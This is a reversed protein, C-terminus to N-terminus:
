KLREWYSPGVPEHFDSTAILYGEDDVSIPLQPLPRKAPGFVVRAEHALDFTSQHCPCLLHRTNQEYLAVPCGVHTCVKSFAIIGHYNWDEKGASVTLDEPPIRVLLVMAKSKENLYHDEGPLEGLEHPIVHFVSGTTVDAARIPRDEPDTALRRGQAGAPKNRWATHRFRSIDWDPTLGGVLTVLFPLPAVAVAAVLAGKLLPRRAINADAVVSDVVALTAARGSEDTRMEHRDEILEADNMLTKAWHVVGTGLGLFGIGIGVGIATTGLRIGLITEGAPFLFYGVVAGVFGLMGTLMLAAAQREARKAAAPDRDSQRYRHPKIGPNSFADPVPDTRRTDESSM